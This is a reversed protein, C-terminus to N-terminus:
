KVTVECLDVNCRNTAMDRLFHNLAKGCKHVTAINSAAIDNGGRVYCTKSM